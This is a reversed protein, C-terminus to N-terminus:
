SLTKITKKAQRLMLVGLLATSPIFILLMLLKQILKIDGSILFFSLIFLTLNILLGMILLELYSNKKRWSPRFQRWMLSICGSSIIAALEMGIGDSGISLRMTGTIIIALLTPIPGFFLGSVSLLITQTDIFIGPFLTAPNLTLVIGVCGLVIGTLIKTLISKSSENKLWFNEYLMTFALLIGANYILDILFTDKM